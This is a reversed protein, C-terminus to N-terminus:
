KAAKVWRPSWGIKQGLVLAMQAAHEQVHRMNYLHLQVYNLDLWTVGCKQFAQEDSMEAITSQCKSRCFDLYTQLERKTYIREPPKGDDDMESLTFPAPPAFDKETGSLYLDLFFLTHYAVCWFESFEPPITTDKWLKTRWHKDPCAQMANEFMDIAAGFQSWLTQQLSTKM